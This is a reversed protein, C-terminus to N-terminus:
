CTLHFAGAVRRGARLLENFREAARATPYAELEIGLSSAKERVRPDIRMVGSAGTGVVLIEPRAAWVDELDEPQLYHGEKRWWDPRVEGEVIKLDRRYSRGAVVMEGFRYSEIM